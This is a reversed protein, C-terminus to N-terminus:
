GGVWGLVWGPAVGAGLVVAALALGFALERPRLDAIELKPPGLFVRQWASVLAAAGLLTGLLSMLALPLAREAVGRLVLLEGVFGVTGPLGGSSLALLLFLASMRPASRALGGLSELDSTGRRQFLFGVVLCLGGTSLLLAPLQWAVGRLSLDNMVALGLVLAGAHSMSSYALLRRLNRQQLSVLSGYVVGIAGPVAMLWFCWSAPEPLLPLAFRLMGYVGLKLGLLVAAAGARGEMAVTPLWTHFPFLPVKVGFGVLFLLFILLARPDSLPLGTLSLLDFAYGGRLEHHSIGLAIAGLLLPVGGTLMYLTYKLAAFRREPGVGWLGILFYLPVLTLEWFLFFLVLDLAVLVGTIVGLLALLLGMFARVQVVVSSWSAVLAGVGILAVTPLLLISIRDVGVLYQVNLSPIWVAREVLQMGPRGPEFCVVALTALALEVLTALLGIWRSARESPAFLCLAGAILPVLVLASLLPFGAQEAAMALETGM